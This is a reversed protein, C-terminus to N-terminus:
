DVWSVSRLGRIRSMHKADGTVLTADLAVAHAAIAIDFDELRTGSRELESKIRAFCRSVDDTWEARPMEELILGFRAELRARRSSPKMRALGYAIESVVPQPLSLDIRSQETLRRVVGSEGKMLESVTSTDLVYRV